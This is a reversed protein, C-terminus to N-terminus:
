KKKKSQAKPKAKTPAFAPSFSDIWGRKVVVSFEQDEDAIMEQLTPLINESYPIAKDKVGTVELFDILLSIFTGLKKYTIVVNGNDGEEFRYPLKVPYEFRGDDVSIIATFVQRPAGTRIVGNDDKYKPEDWDPAPDADKAASFKAFKATFTGVIPRFSYIKDGEKNLSMNWHGAEIDDPANDLDVEYSKGGSEPDMKVQVTKKTLRVQALGYIGGGGKVKKVDM